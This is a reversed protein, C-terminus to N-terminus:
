KWPQKYELMMVEEPAFRTSVSGFELPNQGIGVRHGIVESFERLLEATTEGSGLWVVPSPYYDDLSVISYYMPFLGLAQDRMANDAIGRLPYQLRRFVTVVIHPWTQKAVLEELDEVSRLFFPGNCNRRLHLDVYLEGTERLWNQLTERQAASLTAVHAM